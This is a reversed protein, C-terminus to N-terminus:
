KGLIEALTLGNMKGEKIAKVDRLGEELKGLATGENTTAEILEGGLEKLYKSFKSTADDPISVTLITM